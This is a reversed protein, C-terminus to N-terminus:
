GKSTRVSDEEEKEEERESEEEQQEARSQRLLMKAVDKHGHELATAM